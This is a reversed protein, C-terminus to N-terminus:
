AAETMLLMGAIAIITGLVSLGFPKAADQWHTIVFVFVGFPVFWCVLGWAFSEQFAALLLWLGGVVSLIIGTVLLIGGIEM